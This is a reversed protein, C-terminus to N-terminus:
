VEKGKHHVSKNQLLIVETIQQVTGEEVPIVYNGNEDSVSRYARMLPTEKPYEGMLEESIRYENMGLKQTIVFVETEKKNSFAFVKGELKEKTFGQLVLHVGDETKRVEKLSLGTDRRVCVEAPLLLGKEELKGKLLSSEMCYSREARIYLRVDVVPNQAPLDAKKIVATQPYYDTGIIQITEEAEMPELFVYLGENEKEVPKLLKGNKQFLFKKRFVTKGSFDDVMRLVFAVKATIM